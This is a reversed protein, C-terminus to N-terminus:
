YGWMGALREFVVVRAHGADLVYMRGDPGAAVSLPYFLTGGAGIRLGITGGRLADTWRSGRFVSGFLVQRAMVQASVSVRPGTEDIQQASAWGASTGSNVM